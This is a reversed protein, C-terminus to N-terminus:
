LCCMLEAQKYPRQESGARGRSLWEMSVGHVDWVGPSVCRSVQDCAGEEEGGKNGTERESDPSLELGVEQFSTGRPGPGLATPEEAQKLAITM